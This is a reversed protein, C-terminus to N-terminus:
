RRSAPRRRTFRSDNYQKQRNTPAIRDALVVRKRTAAPEPRSEIEYPLEDDHMEDVPPTMSDEEQWARTGKRSAAEGDIFTKDSAGM